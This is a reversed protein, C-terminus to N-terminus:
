RGCETERKDFGLTDLETRRHLYGAIPAVAVVATAHVLPIPQRLQGNWSRFSLKRGKFGGLAFKDSRLFDRIAAADVTKLRTVAEGIARVAVWAAYDLGTMGRKALKRFRRQLQAAGWQEVVPSWAVAQLGHSGAVPRPLWTNYLFYQGFDRDEDAVILADYDAGQTFLPVERVANRRLDADALWTKEAVLRAGFKAIARKLSAAFKIDGPRRGAVLFLRRWRRKVFFQLLADARMARSPLTHFLNPACLTRRLADDGSGANILIKDRAAPDGAMLRVVPAPANIVIFRGPGALVAHAAARWDAAAPVIRTTLKYRHKLFRGTSNDDQLGLRAGQIGRDPAPRIMNSLTPRAPRQVEFYQIEISLRGAQAEAAMTTAASAALGLLVLLHL